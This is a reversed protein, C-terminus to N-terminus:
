RDRIVFEIPINVRRVPSNPDRAPLFRWQRVAELAAEDLSRVGSGRVLKVEAVGGSSDVAVQLLVVGELRRALADPPYQPAPNLLARPVLRADVGSTTRTPSRSIVGIEPLVERQQRDTTTGTRPRDIQPAGEAGLQDAPSAHAVLEGIALLPQEPVRTPLTDAPELPKTEPSQAQPALQMATQPLTESEASHAPPVSISSVDQEPPYPTVPDTSTGRLWWSSAWLLVAALLHLTASTMLGQRVLPQGWSTTRRTVTQLLEFSRPM